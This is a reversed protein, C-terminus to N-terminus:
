PGDRLDAILDVIRDRVSPTIFRHTPLTVLERALRRAGPYTGFGGTRLRALAGLEPLPRPYGPAIGLARARAQPLRRARRLLVPLRLFGAKAGSIPRVLTVEGGMGLRDIAEVLSGAVETRVDLERESQDATAVALAVSFASIGTPVRPERYHTEGLGLAPIGAPIGYLGPRGFAWQVISGVMPAAGIASRLAWGEWAGHLVRSDRVIVAGGGGGTWGKGRGFSLVTLDGQSGVARGEWSAGAAQAADEVLLAGRAAAVARLDDWPFPYGFLPAVVVVRGGEETAKTVGELDPALTQPDQDYFRVPMGAAVAATAVDFCCYAPLVLSASADGLTDRAMRLAVELASTGSGLLAIQGPGLRRTIIERLAAAKASSDAVLVSRFAARLDAATLPSHAPPQFPPVTARASTECFPLRM